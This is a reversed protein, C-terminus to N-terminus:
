SGARRNAATIQAVQGNMGAIKGILSMNTQLDRERCRVQKLNRLKLRQRNPVLLEGGKVIVGTVEAPRDVSRKEKHYRLGSGHMPSLPGNMTQV